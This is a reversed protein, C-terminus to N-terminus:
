RTPRATVPRWNEQAAFQRRHWDQVVKVSWFLHRGIRAGPPFHGDSVLNELTRQSIGLQQCVQSKQLATPQISDLSM